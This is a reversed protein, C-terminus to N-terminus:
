FLDPHVSKAITETFDVNQLGPTVQVMNVIIFHDNKIAEVEALEKEAKLADIKSQADNENCTYAHIVIYEPNRALIEEVSVTSFDSEVDSFVNNAGAMDLLQQELGNGGAVTYLGDENISDFAMVSVKEADKVVKQVSDFRDKMNQIMKEAKETKGFILGLNQIDHYTNEITCSDVYSGETVYLKVDNQQYDEVTGFFPVFFYYGNMAVFDPKLDLMAELTPPMGTNITDPVEVDKLADHVDPLVDELTNNGTQVAIISNAEGLAAIIEASNLSLCVVQEPKKEYETTQNYNEITVTEFGEADSSGAGGTPVTKGCGVVTVAMALSLVSALIRKKM